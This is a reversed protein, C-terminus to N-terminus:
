LVQIRIGREEMLRREVGTVYREGNVQCLRCAHRFVFGLEEMRKKERLMEALPTSKETGVWCCVIEFEDEERMKNWKADYVSPKHGTPKVVLIKPRFTLSTTMGKREELVKEEAM